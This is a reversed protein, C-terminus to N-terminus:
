IREGCSSRATTARRVTGLGTTSSRRKWWSPIRLLVVSVDDRTPFRRVGGIQFGLEDEVDVPAVSRLETRRRGLADALRKYHIRGDGEVAALM